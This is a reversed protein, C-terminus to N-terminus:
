FKLEYEKILFVECSDLLEQEFDKKEQEDDIWYYSYSFDYNHIVQFFWIARKKTLVPVACSTKLSSNYFCSNLRSQVIDKKLLFLLQKIKKMM